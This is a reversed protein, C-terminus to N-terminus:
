QAYRELAGEYSSTRPQSSGRQRRTRLGELFPRSIWRSLGAVTTFTWVARRAEVETRVVNWGTDPAPSISAHTAVLDLRRRLFTM